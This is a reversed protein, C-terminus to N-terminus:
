HEFDRTQRASTVFLHLPRVRFDLLGSWITNESFFGVEVAMEM